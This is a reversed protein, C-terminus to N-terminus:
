QDLPGAGFIYRPKLMNGFSRIGSCDPTTPSCETTPRLRVTLVAPRFLLSEAPMLLSLVFSFNTRRFGLTEQAINIM